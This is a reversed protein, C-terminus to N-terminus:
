TIQVLRGGVLPMLLDQTTADIPLHEGRRAARALLWADFAMLVQLVWIAPGLAKSVPALDLTAATIDLLALVLVTAFARKAKGGQGLYLYGLGAIGFPLQLLAAMPARKAPNLAATPGAETM